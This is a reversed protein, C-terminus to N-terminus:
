LRRGACDRFVMRDWASFPGSRYGLVVRHSANVYWQVFGRGTRRRKVFGFDAVTWRPLNTPRVDVGHRTLCRTVTATTRPSGAGGGPAYILAAAAVVVALGPVRLVNAEAAELSL